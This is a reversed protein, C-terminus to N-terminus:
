DRWKRPVDRQSIFFSLPSIFCIVVVEANSSNVIGPVLHM